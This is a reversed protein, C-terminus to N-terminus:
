QSNDTTATKRPARRRRPASVPNPLGLHTSLDKETWGANTADRYATAYQKEVDTIDARMADLQAGIGALRTALEARQELLEHVKAHVDAPASAAAAGVGDPGQGRHQHNAQDTTDPTDSM